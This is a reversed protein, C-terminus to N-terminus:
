IHILSLQEPSRRIRYHEPYGILYKKSLRKAEEVPFANRVADKFRDSWPQIRTRIKSEIKAIDLTPIGKADFEFYFQLRPHEDSAIEIVETDVFSMEQYLTDKVADIVDRNFLHLPLVVLLSMVRDAIQHPFCYVDNPNTISLLDDVMALLSDSTRRFLEFKPISTFIRIVENYDYSGQLM